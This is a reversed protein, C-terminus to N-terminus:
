EQVEEVDAEEIDAVAQALRVKLDEKTDETHSAIQGATDDMRELQEQDATDALGIGFCERVAMAYAKQQLRRYPYKSWVNHNPIFWEWFNARVTVPKRDTTNCIGEIWLPVTIVGKGAPVDVTDESCEYTVGAFNSQRNALAVWGDYGVVLQIKGKSEFAHLQKTLPDLDYKNMVHMVVAVEEKTVVGKKSIMTNAVLDFM